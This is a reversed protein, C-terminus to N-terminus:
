DPVRVGGGRARHFFRGFYISLATFGGALIWWALVQAGVRYWNIPCPSPRLATILLYIFGFMSASFCPVSLWVPLGGSMRERLSVLYIGCLLGSFTLATIASLLLSYVLLVKSM